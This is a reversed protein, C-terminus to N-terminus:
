GFDGATLANEYAEHAFNQIGAEFEKAYLPDNKGIGLLELRQEAYLKAQRYMWMPLEITQGNNHNTNKKRNLLSM